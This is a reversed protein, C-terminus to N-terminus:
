EESYTGMNEKFKDLHGYLIHVKFSMRCDMTHYDKVQTVVFEVYKKAKHNGLFGQVMAVFSNSAEKEKRLLKKSFEKCGLIKEMQPGMFVGAKINAM